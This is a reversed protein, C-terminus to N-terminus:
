NKKKITTTPKRFIQKVGELAEIDWSEEHTTVLYTDKDISYKVGWPWALIPKWPLNLQLKVM